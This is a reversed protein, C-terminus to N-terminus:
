SGSNGAGVTWSTIKKDGGGIIVGMKEAAVPGPPSRGEIDVGGLHFCATGPPQGCSNLQDGVGDLPPM